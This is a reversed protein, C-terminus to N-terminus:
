SVNEGTHRVYRMSTSDPSQSADVNLSILYGVNAGFDSVITRFSHIVTQRVARDWHKCECLLQYTRGKVIEQAYVDVEVEGRVTTLVKEVEVTFGCEALIRAVERQLDQWTASYRYNDNDSSTAQPSSVSDHTLKM